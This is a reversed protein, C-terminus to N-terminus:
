GLGREYAYGVSCPAVMCGLKGARLWLKIAEGQNQQLGYEGEDYYFGLIYFAEADNAGARKKCTEHDKGDM